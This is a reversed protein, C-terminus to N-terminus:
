KSKRLKMPLFKIFELFPYKIAFTKKAEAEDKAHVTVVVSLGATRGGGFIMYQKMVQNKM